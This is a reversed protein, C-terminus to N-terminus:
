MAAKKRNLFFMAIDTSDTFLTHYLTRKRWTQRQQQFDSPLRWISSVAVLYYKMIYRGERGVYNIAGTMNTNKVKLGLNRPFFTCCLFVGGCVDGAVALHM